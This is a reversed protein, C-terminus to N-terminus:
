EPLMWCLCWKGCFTCGIRKAVGYPCEEPENLPTYTNKPEQQPNFQKQQVALHSAQDLGKLNDQQRWIEKLKDEMMAMKANRTITVVGLHSTASDTSKKYPGFLQSHMFIPKSLLTDVLPTHPPNNEQLVISETNAVPKSKALEAPANAQAFM